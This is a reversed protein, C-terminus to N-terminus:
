PGWYMEAKQKSWKAGGTNVENIVLCVNSCRYGVDNDYREVSFKFHGNVQLPVNTYACRGGQDRFLKVM